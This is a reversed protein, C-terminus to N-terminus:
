PTQIPKDKGIKNEYLFSLALHQSGVARVRLTPLAKKPSGQHPCLPAPQNRGPAEVRLGASACTNNLFRKFFFWFLVCKFLYGLCNKLFM